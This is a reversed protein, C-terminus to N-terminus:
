QRRAAARIRYASIEIHRWKAAAAEENEEIKMKKIEGNSIEGNNEIKAAESGAVGNINRWKEYSAM